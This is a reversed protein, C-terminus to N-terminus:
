EEDPWLDGEVRCTWDYYLETGFPDITMEVNKEIIKLGDITMRDYFYVLTDHIGEERADELLDILIEKDNPDLKSLFDNIPKNEPLDPWAGRESIWNRYVGKGLDALGDVISKYLDLSKGM